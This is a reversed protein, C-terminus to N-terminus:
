TELIGGRADPVLMRRLVPIPASGAGLVAEHFRRVTYSDGDREQLDRRLKMLLMKGVAAALYLPDYTGREAERRARAEDLYAEDRFFRMGQEVSLDECHLRVAVVVRALHVLSEALQALRLAADNRRFGAEIVMHEAYHSWGQVVAASAFFTSRRVKSDVKRMHQRHLLAGPFTYRAALTTLVAANLDQLHEERREPTWGKDADSLCFYARGPKAELPGSSWLVALARRFFEPMPAVVVPEGDVMPVLSRQRVFSELESVIPPTAKWLEGPGPHDTRVARWASDPERADLRSATKRFEEQVSHLELLALSLLKDPGIDLGEDLRLKREFQDRGLRFSARARPALDSELYEVYSKVAVLADASTDALDSLIHLDDLAALTRPLDSEIFRQVGRWAELGNKVFIGPCEKVNDRASQVFRPVQRLKSVIRRARDSVPAYNFLVQGALSVGLRDAYLQPSREWTRVEEFELIRSELNLGVAAHEQREADPLTAPDIQNLRRAFGALARTYGDVAPRTLDDLLDDHLHIGDWASQTPFVEQLYALYDDVFHPFPESPHM